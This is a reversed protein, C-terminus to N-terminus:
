HAHGVLPRHCDMVLLAMELRPAHILDAVRTSPYRTQPNVITHASTRAKWSTAVWRTKDQLIVCCDLSNSLQVQQLSGDSPDSRFDHQLLADVHLILGGDCIM